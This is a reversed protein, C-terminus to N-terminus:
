QKRRENVLLRPLPVNPPSEPRWHPQCGLSRFYDVVSLDRAAEQAILERMPTTQPEM